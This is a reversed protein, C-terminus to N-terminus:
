EENYAVVVTPRKVFLKEFQQQSLVGLALYKKALEQCAHLIHQGDVPEWIVLSMFKERKEELSHGEM